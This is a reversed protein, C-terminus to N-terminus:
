WVVLHSGSQGDPPAGHNYFSRKRLSLSYPHAFRAIKAALLLSGLQLSQEAKALTKINLAIQAIINLVNDYMVKLGRLVYLLAESVIVVVHVVLYPLLKIRVAGLVQPSIGPVKYM